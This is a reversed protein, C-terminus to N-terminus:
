KKAKKKKSKKKMNKRAKKVSVVKEEKKGSFWFFLLIVLCVVSVGILSYIIYSILNSKKLASKESEKEATEEETEKVEEATEAKKVEEAEEQTTEEKITEEEVTEEAINESKKGIAFYSFGPTVAEFYVNVSDSSTIITLLEDWGGDNFRMLTIESSDVDNDNLWKNPISFDIVANQIDSDDMNTLTFFLFQYIPGELSEISGPMYNVEEVKLKANSLDNLVNIEIDSVSIDSNSISMTLSDGSSVSGWITSKSAVTATSGGGGGTSPPTYTCSQALVPRSAITGCANSDTCTRTQTESEPCSNWSSCSWSEVCLTGNVTFSDNNASYYDAITIDNNESDKISSVSIILTGTGNSVPTFTFQQTTQTNNELAISFSNDTFSLKPDAITGTITGNGNGTNEFTVDIDYDQNILLDDGVDPITINFFPMALAPQVDVTLGTCNVINVGTSNYVTANVLYSGDTTANINWEESVGALTGDNLITLNTLGSPLELTANGSAYDSIQFIGMAGTYYLYIKFTDGQNPSADSANLTLDTGCTVGAFATSISIILAIMWIMIITIKSKM